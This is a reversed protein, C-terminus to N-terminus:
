KSIKVRKVQESMGSIIEFNNKKLNLEKALYNILEKNAKWKEAPAKIRIKLVWNDLVSFFESKSAWPTAKIKIIAINNEYNIYDKLNM